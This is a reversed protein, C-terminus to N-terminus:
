KKISGLRKSLLDDYKILTPNIGDPLQLSGIWKGGVNRRGLMIHEAYELNNRIEYEYDNVKDIMWNGRLRGTDAPTIRRVEKELELATRGIVAKVEKELGEFEKALTM